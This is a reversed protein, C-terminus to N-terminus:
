IYINDFMKEVDISCFGYLPDGTYAKLIDESLDVVRLVNLKPDYFLYNM